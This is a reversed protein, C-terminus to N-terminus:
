RRAADREHASRRRERRAHYVPAARLGAARRARRRPAARLRGREDRLSAELGAEVERYVRNMVAVSNLALALALGGAVAALAPRSRPRGLFVGGVLVAVVAGHWNPSYLIYERGYALHLAFQGAICALPAAFRRDFRGLWLAAPLALALWAAYLARQAPAFSAAGAEELSLSWYPQRWERIVYDSYAPMPAAFNVGAFHNAVLLAHPLAGEAFRDLRGFSRLEGLPSRRAVFYGTGPYLREQLAAAGAVLAAAGAVAAALRAASPAGSPPRLWTARAVLAIAWHMGQTLTVAIGFAGLAAWGAAEARDFPRGARSGLWALPAATALCSISAADPIAALLVSSFSAGCLLAAAVEARRDGGALQSALV